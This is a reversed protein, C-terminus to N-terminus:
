SAFISYLYTEPQVDPVHVADARRLHRGLPPESESMVLAFRHAGRGRDQMGLGSVQVGFSSVRFRFGPM